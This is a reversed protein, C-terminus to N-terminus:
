AGRELFSALTELQSNFRRVRELTGGRDSASSIQNVVSRLMFETGATRGDDSGHPSERSLELEARRAAESLRWKRRADAESEWNRKRVADCRLAIRERQKRIELWEAQLSAKTRKSKRVRAELSIRNELAESMDFLEDDLDRGFAELASRKTKSTTRRRNRDDNSNNLNSTLREIMNEVTERCIQALVDVANVQSRDPGMTLASGVAGEKQGSEDDTEEEEGGEEEEAITPLKSTNTLRHTLIPFTAKTKKQQQQRPQHREQTRGSQRKEKRPGRKPPAPTEPEVSSEPAYTNDEEEEAAEQHALNRRPSAPSEDVPTPAERRATSGNKDPQAFLAPTSPPISVRAQPSTDHTLSQETQNLRNHKTTSSRRKRVLNVSKRKRRSKKAPANDYRSTNQAADATDQSPPIDHDANSVDADDLEIDSGALQQHSVNDEEDAAPGSSHSLGTASGIPSRSVGLQETDVGKTHETRPGAELLSSDRGTEEFVGASPTGKEELLISSRTRRRSTRRSANSDSIKAPVSNDPADNEKEADDQPVFLPSEVRLRPTVVERRVTEPPEHAERDEAIPFISNRAQRRTSSRTSRVDPTRTSQAPTETAQSIRRRKSSYESSASVVGRQRQTESPTQTSAPATSPERSRRSNEAPTVSPQRSSSRRSQPTKTTSRRSRASSPFSIGFDVNDIKRSAAGRQRMQQREQRNNSFGFDLGFEAKAVNRAGAGRQRMLARDQRTTSSM